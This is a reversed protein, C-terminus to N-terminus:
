LTITERLLRGFSGPETSGTKGTSFYGTSTRTTADETGFREKSDHRAIRLTMLTRTETTLVLASGATTGLHTEQFCIFIQKVKM